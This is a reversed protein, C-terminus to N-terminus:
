THIHEKVGEKVGFWWHNRTIHALTHEVGLGGDFAPSHLQDVMWGSQVKGFVLLVMGKQM